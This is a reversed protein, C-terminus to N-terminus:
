PYGELSDALSDVLLVPALTSPAPIREYNALRMTVTRAVNTM